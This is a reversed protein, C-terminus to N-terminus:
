KHKITKEDITLVGKPNYNIKIYSMISSAGNEIAILQCGKIIDMLEDYDGEIVTEFPTVICHLNKSKIYEIVKDIVKIHDDATPLVQIAISTNYM